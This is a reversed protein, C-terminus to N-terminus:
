WQTPSAVRPPAPALMGNLSPTSACEELREALRRLLATDDVMLVANTIGVPPPVDGDLLIQQNIVSARFETGLAKLRGEADEPLRTGDAIIFQYIAEAPGTVEIRKGTLLEYKQSGGAKELQSIEVDVGERFWVALGAPDKPPSDTPAPLSVRAKEPSRPKASMQSRRRLSGDWAFLGVTLRVLSPPGSAPTLSRDAEDVHTARRPVGGTGKALVRHSAVPRVSRRLGPLLLSLGPHPGGGPRAAFRRARNMGSSGPRLGAKGSLGALRHM